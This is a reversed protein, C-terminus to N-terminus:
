SITTMYVPPLEDSNQLITNSGHESDFGLKALKKSAQLTVEVRFISVIYDESIDNFKEQVV